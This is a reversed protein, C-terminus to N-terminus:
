LDAITAVVMRRVLDGDRNLEDPGEDEGATKEIKGLRGAPVQFSTFILRSGLRELAQSANRTIVRFDSLFHLVDLIIQSDFLLDTIGRPSIAESHTLVLNQETGEASHSELCPLLEGTDVEDEVVACGEEGCRTNLVGEQGGNSGVDDVDAHSDGTDEGNITDASSFKEYDASSAHTNALVEDGDETYGKGLVVVRTLLSNNGEHADVNGEEGRCPSRDSPDDNAFDEREVDTALTDGEGSSAVPEHVPGDAISGGEEDVGAGTIGVEAGLHEEDPTAGTESAQEEGVEEDGLGLAQGQFLDIDEVLVGSGDLGIRVAPLKDGFVDGGGLIVSETSNVLVDTTTNETVAPGAVSLLTFSEFMVRVFLLSSRVENRDM